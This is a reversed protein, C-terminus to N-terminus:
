SFTRSIPMSNSLTDAPIPIAAVRGGGEAKGARLEAKTAFPSSASVIRDATSAINRLVMYAPVHKVGRAPERTWPHIFEFDKIKFEHALAINTAFIAALVAASTLVRSMRM